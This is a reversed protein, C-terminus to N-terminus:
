YTLSGTPSVVLVYDALRSVRTVGARGSVKTAIRSV